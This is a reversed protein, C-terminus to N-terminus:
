TILSKLRRIGAALECGVFNLNIWTQNANPIEDVKYDIRIGKKIKGQNLQKIKSKLANKRM